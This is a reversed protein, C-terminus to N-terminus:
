VVVVVGVLVVVVPCFFCLFVQLLVIIILSGIHVVHLHESTLISGSNIYQPELVIGEGGTPHHITAQLGFTGGARWVTWQVTM